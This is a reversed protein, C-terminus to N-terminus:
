EEVRPRVEPPLEEEPVMPELAMKVPADGVPEEGEKAEVPTLCWPLGKVVKLLEPDRRQTPPLRKVSNVKIVGKPTLLRLENSREILGVFIGTGFRDDYKRRRKNIAVKLYM